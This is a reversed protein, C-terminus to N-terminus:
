FHCGAIKFSQRCEGDAAQETCHNNGLYRQYSEPPSKEIRQVVSLQMRRVNGTQPSDSKKRTDNHGNREDNGAM